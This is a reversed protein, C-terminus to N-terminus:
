PKAAERAALAERTLRFWKNNGEARALRIVGRQRLVEFGISMINSDLGTETRVDVQRFEDRIEALRYITEEILDVREPAIGKGSAALDQIKSRSPKGGAPRGPGKHEPEEGTLLQLAREYRKLSPLIEDMEARLEAIRARRTEISARLEVVIREEEHTVAGNQSPSAVETPM